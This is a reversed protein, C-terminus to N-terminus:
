KSVSIGSGSVKIQDQFTVFIKLYCSQTKPLKCLCFFIGGIKFSIKLLPAAFPFEELQAIIMSVDPYRSSGPKVLARNATAMGTNRIHASANEGFMHRQRFGM